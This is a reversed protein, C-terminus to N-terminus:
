FAPFELRSVDYGLSRARVEPRGSTVTFRYTGDRQTLARAPTGVAFVSVGQLGLGTTADTVRGTLTGTSQGALPLAAVLALLVAVALSAGSTGLTRAIRCPREVM